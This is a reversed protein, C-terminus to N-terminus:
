IDARLYVLSWSGALFLVLILLLVAGVVGPGAAACGTGPAARPEPM